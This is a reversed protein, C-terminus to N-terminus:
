SAAVPGAAVAVGRSGLGLGVGQQATGGVVTVAVVRPGAFGRGRVGM